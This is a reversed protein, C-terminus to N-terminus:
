DLKFEFIEPQNKRYVRLWMLTAPVLSTIAFWLADEQAAGTQDLARSTAEWGSWDLEPLQTRAESPLSSASAALSRLQRAVETRTLRSRMFEDRELHETLTLVALGAEEIIALLASNLLAPQAHTM